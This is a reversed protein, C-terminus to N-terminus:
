DLEKSDRGYYDRAFNWYALLLESVTAGSTPLPATEAGATWESMLRHYAEKSARTNWKGLYRTKGNLVVIANGSPKHRRYSPM